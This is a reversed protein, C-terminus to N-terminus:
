CLVNWPLLTNHSDQHSNRLHWIKDEEEEEQDQERPQEKAGREREKKKRQVKRQRLKNKERKSQIQKMRQKRRLKMKNGWQEVDGDRGMGSWGEGGLKEVREMGDRSPCPWGLYAPMGSERQDLSDLSHPASQGQGPGQSQELDHSSSTWVRKNSHSSSSFFFDPEGTIGMSTYNAYWFRERKLVRLQTSGGDNEITQLSNM